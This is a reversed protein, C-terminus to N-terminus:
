EVPTDAEASAAAGGREAAGASAPAQESPQASAPHPGDGGPAAPAPPSPGDMTDERVMAAIIGGDGAAAANVSTTIGRAAPSLLPWPPPDRSQDSASEGWGKGQDPLPLPIAEHLDRSQAASREPHRVLAPM